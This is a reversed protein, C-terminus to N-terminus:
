GIGAEERAVERISCYDGDHARKWAKVAEEIPFPNDSRIYLYGSCRCILYKETPM